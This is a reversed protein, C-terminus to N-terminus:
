IGRGQVTEDGNGGGVDLIQSFNSFKVLEVFEANTVRSRTEMFEHFIQEVKPDHTLKAYLNDEDGKFVELGAARSQTISEFYYFMSPYIIHHMWELYLVLSRQCHKNLFKAALRRCCYREGSKKLLKLAVCTLLLVLASNEEINLHRAIEQRTLGPKRNLLGFLDLQCATRVTQFFVPGGNIFPLSSRHARLM